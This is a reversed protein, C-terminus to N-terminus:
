NAQVPVFEPAIVFASVRRQRLAVHRCRAAAALAHDIWIIGIGTRAFRPGALLPLGKCRIGQDARKSSGIGSVFPRANSVNLSAAIYMVLSGLASCSVSGHTTQ